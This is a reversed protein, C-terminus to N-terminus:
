FVVDILSPGPEDFSAQLARVLGDATEVRTAEMGMGKALSVFDLDPRKLDLMDLAKPGPNQVGVKPLEGHLIEYIRNSFIVNTVRCNERAQTWLAQLTYMASGDGSLALVRRDPAAISAGTAMPLGLGISGGMNNMWDHEPAGATLTFFGRGTNVSEDCVIANEPIAAGLAAAISDKTLAGTPVPPREPVQVKAQANTAGVEDALWELAQVLDEDLSALRHVECSEPTLFSPKNPYAFFAVPPKAGILIVHKYPALFKLALDVNFPVREVPVRGAGRQIRANAGQAMVAAGTTAAIRGALNLPYERLAMGTMVLATPEGSKLVRVANAIAAEDVRARAPAAAVEAPGNSEGWATDAPLILTAVQGPSTNAAQIAEAADAAIETAKPSTKVWHSFPRAIGEIDATLPSDMAVHYTAHEGVVNVVPSNAKRANHLNAAANALGPGLHLLTAAPKEAIRAYGDAAGTVVGEFLGLVCRMGDVKDLAAVFHMESTGPNAFCVDVDGAILTRVLSEAGNM